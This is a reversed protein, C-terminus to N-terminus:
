RIFQIMKVPKHAWSMSYISYTVHNNNQRLTRHLNRHWLDCLEFLQVPSIVLWPLVVHLENLSAHSLPSLFALFKRRCGICRCSYSISKAKSGVFSIWENRWVYFLIQLNVYRRHIVREGRPFSQLLLEFKHWNTLNNTEITPKVCCTHLVACIQYMM